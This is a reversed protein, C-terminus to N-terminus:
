QFLSVEIERNFTRPTQKAFHQKLANRVLDHGPRERKSLRVRTVLWVRDYRRLAAILDPIHRALFYSQTGHDALQATEASFKAPVIKVRLPVPQRNRYYEFPIGAPGGVILVIDNQRFGEAVYKVVERWPEKDNLTYSNMASVFWIATLVSTAIMRLWANPLWSIGAAIAVAYPVTVGIALRSVFIPRYINSLVVLTVVPVLIASALLLGIRWKRDRLLKVIGAAAILLFLLYPIPQWRFLAPAGFLYKLNELYQEWTLAIIWFDSGVKHFTLSLYYFYPICLTALIAGSLFVNRLFERNSRLTVVLYPLLALALATVYIASTYHMWLIAATGITLALWAWVAGPQEATQEAEERFAGFGVWPHCAAAPFRLLHGLGALAVAFALSQAAYPRAEQSYEIQVPSLAVALAAITGVWRGTRGGGVNVGLWYVVPVTLVGFLVSLGRAASESTGFVFIWSKLFTYYLPPHPEFHPISTWLDLLPQQAFWISWAEDLWFSLHDIRYWRLAFAGLILGFIVLHRGAHRASLMQAVPNTEGM